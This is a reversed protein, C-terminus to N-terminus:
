FQYIIHEQVVIHGQCLIKAKCAKGFYKRIVFNLAWDHLADNFLMFVEDRGFHIYGHWGCFLDFKMHPKQEFHQGNNGGQVIM